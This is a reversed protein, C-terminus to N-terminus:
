CRVGDVIGDAAVPLTHGAECRFAKGAPGAEVPTVPRGCRPCRLVEALRRMGVPKPVGSRIAWVLDYDVQWSQTRVMELPLASLKAEFAARSYTRGPLWRADKGVRNTILLVGGPRLVRVMERLVRDQDPMFELAELCTVADFTGDAFPLTGAAQWVLTVDDSWAHTKARAYELMRRSIDLGIVRGSFGTWTYLARPLRGTGTAVDLVLPDRFGAEALARSLPEGLFWREYLGQYQKIKDYVRASWDYLLAVVRRGLYAGEALILQWYLFAVVLLGVAVGVAWGM